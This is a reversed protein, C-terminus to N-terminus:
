SSTAAPKKGKSSTVSKQSASVNPASSTKSSKIKKELKSIPSPAPKKTKASQSIQPATTKKASAKVKSEAKKPKV